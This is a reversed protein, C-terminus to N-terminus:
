FAPDFLQMVASYVEVGVNPKTLVVDVGALKDVDQNSLSKKARAGFPHHNSVTRLASIAWGKSVQAVLGVLLVIKVAISVAGADFPFVM